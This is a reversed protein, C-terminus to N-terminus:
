LIKCVDDFDFRSNRPYLTQSDGYGINCIFNVQVNQDAFFKDKVGQKDFGSMPGCDLGLARAAMIMYAGQLTGNRMATEAILNDKGKFYTAGDSQPFLDPLHEYFKLDNAVIVTVPASMTKEVNGPMLYPKLREKAEPSKVFCFRAPCCNMSTPGWKMLDYMAQILVDTVEQDKWGSYTRAQRFLIDFSEDDLIKSEVSM